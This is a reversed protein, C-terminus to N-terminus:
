EHNSSVTYSSQAFASLCDRYLGAVCETQRSCYVHMVELRSGYDLTGIQRGFLETSSFLEEITSSIGMERCVESEAEMKKIEEYMPRIGESYEEMCLIAPDQYRAAGPDLFVTTLVVAALVAAAPLMIKMLMRSRARSSLRYLFEGEAVQPEQDLADIEKRYKRFYQEMM